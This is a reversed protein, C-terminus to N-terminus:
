ITGSIGACYKHMVGDSGQFGARNREESRGVASGAAITAPWRLLWESGHCIEPWARRLERDGIGGGQRRSEALGAGSGRREHPLGGLDRQNVLAGRECVGSDRRVRGDASFAVADAGFRGAGPLGPPGGPDDADSEGPRRFEGQDCHHESASFAAGSRGARHRAGFKCNGREDHERLDTGGPQDYYCRRKLVARSRRTTTRTRVM